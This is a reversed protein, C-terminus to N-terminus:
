SKPRSSASLGELLSLAKKREKASIVIGDLTKVNANAKMILARYALRRVYFEDPLDRRYRSDLAEWSQSTGNTLHPQEENHPIGPLGKMLVPPYLGLTCPNMRIDILELDPMKQFARILPKASSLRSAILALKRLRLLGELPASDTLFNYNLNLVRVNPVSDAMKSPLTTLGCSAIELYQLCYCPEDFMQELNVANGSLYLRKIDRIFRLSLDLDRSSQYRLSLNELNSLPRTVILRTIRNSDAYLTRLQPFNDLHLHSLKNNSIRLTSLHPLMGGAQLETLRNCELSLTSLSPLNVLGNLSNLRNRKLSLTQLKPWRHSGFDIGEIRNGELSLNVLRQLREIGDTESVMNNDAKLDKLRALCSLQRLSEIQNNSIDLSQLNTLHNYSTLGTLQNSAVQLAQVTGPIGSLWSIKNSNLKLSSLYPLFDKLRAASEVQKNSLDISSLGEWHPEDPFLDTIVQVLKDQAVGFSCETLFTGNPKPKNSNDTLNRSARSSQLRTFSRRSGPGSVEHDLKVSRSSLSAKSPTDDLVSSDFDEFQQELNKNRANILLATSNSANESLKLDSMTGSPSDDSHLGRIRGDTRGDSFSVSRRHASAYVPTASGSKLASRPVMDSRRHPLPTGFSATTVSAQIRFGLPQSRTEGLHTSTERRASAGTAAEPEDLETQQEIEDGSQVETEDGDDDSPRGDIITPVVLADDDEEDTTDVLEVSAIGTMVEVIGADEFGEFSFSPAEHPDAGETPATSHNGKSWGGSLSEIDRFVDESEAEGELVEESNDHHQHEREKRWVMNNPDYVMVGVKAPLSPVDDPSIRTIKLPPQGAHKVFSPASGASTPFSSVTQTSSSSVFRHLDSTQSVGRTLEASAFVLPPADPPPALRSPDPTIHDQHVSKTSPSSTTSALIVAPVEPGDHFISTVSLTMISMEAAIERDVEDAASLKRLLKRPSPGTFKRRAPSKRQHESRNSTRGSTDQTRGKDESKTSSMTSTSPRSSHQRLNAKIASMLDAASRRYANASLATRVPASEEPGQPDNAISTAHEIAASADSPVTRTDSVVRGTTRSKETESLGLSVSRANKRIASMLDQSEGVYDRRPPPPLLEESPEDDPVSDLTPTLKIRKPNRVEAEPSTLPSPTLVAISDVIASLHERTYTDYNFHFLKLKPDTLARELPKASQASTPTSTLVSNSPPQFTFQYDHSPKRGDFLGLNPLDSELIPDLAEETHATAEPEYSYDEHVTHSTDTISPAPVYENALKSPAFVPATFPKGPPISTSPTTDTPPSPPDFMKELQLPSFIDRSQKGAKPLQLAPQEERVLMTGWVLSDDNRDGPIEEVPPLVLNIKVSGAVHAVHDDFRGNSVEVVPKDPTLDGERMDEEIWEEDLEDTQWAPRSAALM